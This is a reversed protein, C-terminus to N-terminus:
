YNQEKEKFVIKVKKNKNTNRILIKKVDEISSFGALNTDKMSIGQKLSTNENQMIKSISDEYEKDFVIVEAGSRKLSLEIEAEPLGKDLPVIVGVGNIVALYTLAWEYSNKGIVAIKKDKYGLKVLGTGFENIDKQLDIYTVEKYSVEKGNKNKIKFAVHNGYLKVSNNIIDRINDFREAEYLIKTEIETSM